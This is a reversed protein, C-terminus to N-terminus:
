VVLLVTAEKYDYEMFWVVGGWQMIMAIVDVVVDDEVM